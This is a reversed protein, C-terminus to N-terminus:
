SKAGTTPPSWGLEILKMRIAGEMAAPSLNVSAKVLEGRMNAAHEDAVKRLALLECWLCGHDIWNSATLRGHGYECQVFRFTCDKMDEPLQALLAQYDEFTVYDGDEVEELEQWPEGMSTRSVMGYRTVESM